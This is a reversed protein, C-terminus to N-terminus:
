ISLNQDFSIVVLCYNANSELFYSTRSRVSLIKPLYFWVLWETALPFSLKKTRFESYLGNYNGNSGYNYSSYYTSDIDSPKKCCSAGDVHLMQGVRLKDEYNDNDTGSPSHRISHNHESTGIRLNATNYYNNYNPSCSCNTPSDIRNFCHFGGSCCCHSPQRRDVDRDSSCDHWVATGSYMQGPVATPILPEPKFSQRLRQLCFKRKKNDGILEEQPWNTSISVSRCGGHSSMFKYIVYVPICLVSSLTLVWGAAVSWEPYQYEGELM